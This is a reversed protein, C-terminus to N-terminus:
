HLLVSSLGVKRLTMMLTCTENHRPYYDTIEPRLDLPKESFMKVVRMSRLPLFVFFINTTLPNWMERKKVMEEVEQSSNLYSYMEILEM